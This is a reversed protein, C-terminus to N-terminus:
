VTLPLRGDWNQLAGRNQLLTELSYEYIWTLNKQHGICKELTFFKSVLNFHGWYIKQHPASDFSKVASFFKPRLEYQDNFDTGLKVNRLPAKNMTPNEWKRGRRSEGAWKCRKLRWKLQKLGKEVWCSLFFPTESSILVDLLGNPATQGTRLHYEKKVWFPFVVKNQSFAGSSICALYASPNLPRFTRPSGIQIFSM